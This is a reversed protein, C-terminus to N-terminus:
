TERIAGDRTQMTAIMEDTLPRKTKGDRELCVLVAEGTCKLAGGVFVGYEMRFASARYAVTRGTVIYAENLYCPALYRASNQIVVFQPDEVTYNSLGYDRFYSIRLTEFWRLYAVNNVHNLADLEYFRVRDAIGYTWPPDIGQAALDNRDLPTLFNPDAM